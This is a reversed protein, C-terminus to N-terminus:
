KKKFIMWLGGVIALVYVCLKIISVTTWSIEGIFRSVIGLLGAVILLYGAVTNTRRKEKQQTM